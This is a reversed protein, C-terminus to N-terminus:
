KTVTQLLLDGHETETWDHVEDNPKKNNTNNTTPELSSGSNYKHVVTLKAFFWNWIADKPVKNCASVRSTRQMEKTSNTLFVLSLVNIFDHFVSLTIELGSSYTPM